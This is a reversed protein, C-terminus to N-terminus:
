AEGRRLTIVTIEPLSDMRIPTGVVGIGRNVYLYSGKISYLGEVFGNFMLYSLLKGGIIQGGHTHGSLQLNFGVEVSKFFCQPQHSLLISFNNKIEKLELKKFDPGRGPIIRQAWLDDIGAIFIREGDREFSLYSNVLIKIGKMTMYRQTLFPDAYYDHNGLVGIISINAKLKQLIDGCDYIENPEAEVFDGTIFIFDAKLRNVTAVVEELEEKFLFPGFHIDSIQVLKLGDFNRPLEMFTLPFEVVKINKKLKLGYTVYGGTFFLLSTAGIKQFFGRRSPSFNDGKNKFKHVIRLLIAFIGLIFISYFFTLEIITFFSSIYSLLKSKYYYSSLVKFLGTLAVVIGLLLGIKLKHKRNQINFLKIIIIYFLAQAAIIILIILCVFFILREVNWM